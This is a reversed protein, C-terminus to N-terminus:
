ASADSRKAALELLANTAEATETVAARVIPSSPTKYGLDRQAKVSREVYKKAASVAEQTM